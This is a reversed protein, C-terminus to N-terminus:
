HAWVRCCGESGPSVMLETFLRGGEVDKGNRQGNTGGTHIWVDGPTLARGSPAVCDPDRGSVHVHHVPRSASRIHPHVHQNSTLSLWSDLDKEKTAAHHEPLLTGLSCSSM